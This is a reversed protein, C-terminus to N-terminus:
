AAKKLQQEAKTTAGNERFFKSKGPEAEEKKKDDTAPAAPQEKAKNKIEAKANPDKVEEEQAETIMLPMLLLTYGNENILMASTATNMEFTLDTSGSIDLLQSLFGGNFAIQLPKFNKSDKGAALQCKGKLIIEQECDADFGRLSYTTKDFTFVVKKDKTTLSSAIRINRKVEASNITIHHASKEPIVQNYAPFKADILRSIIQTSNDNISIHTSGIRILTTTDLISLANILKPPLIVAFKKKTPAKYTSKLLRHADTAAIESDSFYIGTMAPRMDDKSAIKLCDDFITFLEGSEPVDFEIAKKVEPSKPFNVADEPVFKMVNDGYAFSLEKHGVKIIVDDEEDKLLNIVAHAQPPILFEKNEDKPEVEAAIGTIITTELDTCTLILGTKQTSVLVSDLAPIVNSTGKAKLVKNLGAALHAPKLKITTM